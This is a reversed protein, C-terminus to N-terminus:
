ITRPPWGTYEETEDPGLRDLIIPAVDAMADCWAVTQEIAPAQREWHEWADFIAQVATTDVWGGCTREFDELCQVRHNPYIGQAEIASRILTWAFTFTVYFLTDSEEETPIPAMGPFTAHFAERDTAVHEIEKSVLEIWGSEALLRRREESDAHAVRQLEQALRECIPLRHRGPAKNWTENLADTQEYLTEGVLGSEQADRLTLFFEDMSLLEIHDHAALGEMESAMHGFVGEAIQAFLFMFLPRTPCEESFKVIEGVNDRGVNAIHVSHVKPIPGDVYSRAYPSGGLGCVMGLKSKLAEQERAIAPEDEVERWWDRLYWNVMNVGNQGSQDLLRCTERLYDDVLSEPWRHSYTYGVGSSPGWFNDNATKTQYYYRLMGPTLQVMLPLLGWGMKFQGREPALWNSSHLDNMAWTADGDSVYLCVYIKGAEARCEDPEPLPQRYGAATDGVGGHITLNPTSVSCLSFFGREAAEAIYEKEQDKVCHWNMQIGPPDASDLMKRYLRQTERSQRSLPLDLAMGQHYVIFDELTHCMAYWLPRHICFNAFLRRNCQPWLNEIAWAAAATDSKFRGRLDDRKPIGHRVMWDEEEPAVPLLGELGCRTIALNQTQIVDRNDFVVYGEAFSKYQDLLADTDPLSQDPITYTQSYYALWHDEYLPIHRGRREEGGACLLYLHPENRNVLGQLSRLWIWFDIDAATAEPTLTVLRKVRPINPLIETFRM